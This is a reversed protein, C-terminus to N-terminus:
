IWDFERKRIVDVLVQNFPTCITLCKGMKCVADNIFAVESKRKKEHDQLMSPRALPMMHGFKIVYQMPDSFSFSVKYTCGVCFAERACNSVVNRTGFDKLMGQVNKKWVTCPASYAVNCLFKDWLLTSINNFCNIRFGARLWM